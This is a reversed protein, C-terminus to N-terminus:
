GIQVAVMVGPSFIWAAGLAILGIGILLIPITVLLQNTAYTM